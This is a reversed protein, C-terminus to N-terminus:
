VTVKNYYEAFFKRLERDMDNNDGKDLLFTQYLKWISKDLDTFTEFKSNNKGELVTYGKDEIYDILDQEDFDELDFDVDVEVIATRSTGRRYSM